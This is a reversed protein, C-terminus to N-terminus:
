GNTKEDWSWEESFMLYTRGKEDCLANGQRHLATPCDVVAAMPGNGSLKVLMVGHEAWPGTTAAFAEEEIGRYSASVIPLYGKEFRPGKLEAHEHGFVEDAAGVHFTM